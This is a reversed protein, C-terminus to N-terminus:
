RKGGRLILVWDGAPPSPVQCTKGEVVLSVPTSAGSRPNFWAGVPTPPLGELALVLPRAEPDYVLALDKAETAAAAIFKLPSAGAPQAPLAKPEPRLRWFDIGGVFGAMQTMEKAAPMFMARKWLPLNGGKVKSKQEPTSRDWEVVGQGAYSLGAPPSLLLSWYAAKRVNDSGFRQRSGPSLGNECPLFAIIPRAPTSSWERFFPGGFARELGSDTFDTIPEGGLLNVWNQNRFAELAETAIGPYVLVPAHRGEEFVAHGIRKWREVLKPISGDFALLWVVPEAGWRAVAYRVLLAVQDDSLSAARQRPELEVLPAIAGLLGAQGLLDLKADLQRFFEPNIAIRDPFGGIASQGLADEGPSVAWQIVTFRRAARALAYYEWDAPEAAQIGNWTTDALWFFPTGDAYELHRHDRAM